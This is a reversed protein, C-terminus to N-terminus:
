QSLVFCDNPSGNGFCEEGHDASDWLDIPRRLEHRRGRLLWCILVLLQLLLFTSLGLVLLRIAPREAFLLHSCISLSLKKHFPVMELQIDKEGRERDRM